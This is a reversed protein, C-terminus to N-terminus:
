GQPQWRCTLVLILAASADAANQNDQVSLKASIVESVANSLDLWSRRGAVFQRQYSALLDDSAQMASASVAAGREGARFSAYQRRLLTRVQREAQALQATAEAVDAKAGDIASLKSLGNGTQARLVVAARAGTLENQSLQLLVRPFLQAEANDYASQAAGLRNTREDITPSCANAEAVALDEPPLSVSQDSIDDYSLAVDEGVLEVLQLYAIDRQEKSAALDANFQAIRSQALTLDVAPSVQQLVRREISASLEAYRALGEELVKIRNDFRAVDYYSQIVDLMLTQTTVGVSSAAAGANFRAEEISSGIAGGTWVPQELALNAALGDTDAITSGGTASLLEATLNPFRQWKATRLDAEASKSAAQSAMLLPSSQLARAVAQALAKPIGTPAVSGSAAPEPIEPGYVEAASDAQKKDQAAAVNVSVGAVVFALIGAGCRMLPTLLTAGEPLKKKRGGLLAPQVRDFSSSPGETM